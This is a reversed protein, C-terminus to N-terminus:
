KVKRPLKLLNVGFSTGFMFQDGNLWGAQVTWKKFFTAYAGVNLHQSDYEAMLGAKQRFSLSLGGFPGELYHNRYRWTSKKQWVFNSLFSYNTTTSGQRYVFYPSGYGASVELKWDRAIEFHKTAVVVHTLMAGDITFPVTMIVALGPRKETEKLVQYRLDMGRDGIGESVDSTPTDIMQLLTVGVELRPLITVNAFLIREPNENRGRLGYRIPNYNYGIRFFGDDTMVASPTYMLGSKGSLNVQASTPLYWWVMIGFLLLFTHHHNRRALQM